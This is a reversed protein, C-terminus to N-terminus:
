APRLNKLDSHWQQWGYWALGIFIGYLLATLRLDKALYIGVYVADVAIWLIWCELVKRAMLWQAILSFVMTGADWWPLAADTRTAMMYGAAGTGAAGAALLIGATTLSIRGPPRQMGPSPGTTVWVFWGYAQLFIYIIQLAADSYLKVDVFVIAYVVVSAIGIPWCWIHQRATLWVAIVSLVFGLVELPSM